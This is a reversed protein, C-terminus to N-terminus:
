ASDKSRRPAMSPVRDRLDPSYRSCRITAPAQRRHHQGQRLGSRLRARKLKKTGETRPLAGDKWISFSRIRQHDALQTNANRIITEPDAGPDLLILRMFASM